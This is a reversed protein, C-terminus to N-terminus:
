RYLSFLYDQVKAKESNALRDFDMMTIKYAPTVLKSDFMQQSLNGFLLESLQYTQDSSIEPLFYKLAINEPKIDTHVYDLKHLTRLGQM